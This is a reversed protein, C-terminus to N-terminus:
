LLAEDFAQSLIAFIEEANPFVKEGAFLSYNWMINKCVFCNIIITVHSLLSVDKILFGYCSLWLMVIQTRTMLSFQDSEIVVPLFCWLGCSGSSVSLLAPLRGRAFCFGSRCSRRQVCLRSIIWTIRMLKKPFTNGLRNFPPIITFDRPKATRHAPSQTPRLRKQCTQKNTKKYHICTRGTIIIKITFVTFLFALAATM